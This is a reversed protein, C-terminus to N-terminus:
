IREEILDLIEPFPKKDPTKAYHMFMDIGAQVAIARIVADFNEPSYNQTLFVNFAEQGDEHLMNKFKAIEINKRTFFENFQQQVSQMNEKAQQAEKTAQVREKVTTEKPPSKPSNKSTVSSKDRIENGNQSANLTGQVESIIQQSPEPIHQDTSLVPPISPQM